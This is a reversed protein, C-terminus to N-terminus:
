SGSLLRKVFGRLGRPPAALARLSQLESKLAANENQLAGLAVMMRHGQSRLREQTERADVLEGEIRDLLRGSGREVLRAADLERELLDVTEARTAQLQQERGLATELAAIRERYSRELRGPGCVRPKPGRAPYLTVTPQGDEATTREITGEDAHLLHDM